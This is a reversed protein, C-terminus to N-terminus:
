QREKMGIRASNYSATWAMSRAIGVLSEFDGVSLGFKGRVTEGEYATPEHKLALLLDPSVSFYYDSQTQDLGFTDTTSPRLIIAEPIVLNRALEYVDSKRCDAIPYIDASDDGYKVVFGLDIEDGNSCGIVAYGLREAYSYATAMRIRQKVNQAAIIARLHAVSIPTAETWNGQRPGIVLQFTAAGLRMSREQDFNLAFGHTDPAFAPFYWRVVRTIEDDNALASRAPEIDFVTLDLGASLAAQSACELSQPSSDKDPLHLAVVRGAGLARVTLALVVASDVGGSVQVVAGRKGLDRVATAIDHIRQGVSGVM